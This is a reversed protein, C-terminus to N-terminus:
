DTPKPRQIQSIPIKVIGDTSKIQPTKRGGAHGYVVEYTATLGQPTRHQEYHSLMSQFKHKGTLGQRKGTMVTHAGIARLERMLTVVDAYYYRHWDVDMVPNHLGARLLADGLEHMDTFHNIHNTDDVSAWSQRLEKLTDLGLTSFLLVGDPKLVRAFEAFVGAFDPCWQLMLSSVVLDVSASAIPLHLANAAIFHQHRPRFFPISWPAKQQAYQLMPMAIDLAYLQANPYHQSLARTLRGSGAGIDAIVTPQIKLEVTRAVLQECVEKQLQAFQEYTQAAQGFSRAIARLNLLDPSDM